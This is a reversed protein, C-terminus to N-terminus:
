AAKGEVSALPNGEGKHPPTLPPPFGSRQPEPIGGVRDRGWLPPPSTTAPAEGLKSPAAHPVGAMMIAAVLGPFGAGSGLDIWSRTGPPALPVLQASDAIHRQWIEHTTSRAILNQRANEKLLLAVYQELLAITERSVDAGTAAEIIDKM